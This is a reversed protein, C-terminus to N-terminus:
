RGTRYPTSFSTGLKQSLTWWGESAARAVARRALAKTGQGLATKRMGECKHFVSRISLPK